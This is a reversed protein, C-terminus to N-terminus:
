FLSYIAAPAITMAAVALLTCLALVAVLPLLWWKKNEGLFQLFECVIGTPAEQSAAEFENKLHMVIDKGVVSTAARVAPQKKPQWYSTASRDIKLQLADRGVLRFLLAVPVIVVCYAALLVLEHIFIVLPCTAINLAVVLPRLVHPRILAAFALAAGVAAAPLVAVTAGHGWLAAALPLAAFSTLGFTRLQRLSPNWNIEM